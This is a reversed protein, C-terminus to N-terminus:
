KSGKHLMYGLLGLVCFFPRNPFAPFPPVSGSTVLSTYYNELGRLYDLRLDAIFVIYDVVFLM